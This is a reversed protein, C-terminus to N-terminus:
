RGRVSNKDNLLLKLGKIMYSLLGTKMVRLTCMSGANKDDTVIDGPLEAKMQKGLSLIELM